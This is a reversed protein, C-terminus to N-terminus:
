LAVQESESKDAKKVLTTIKAVEGMSFSSRGAKARDIGEELKAIHAAQKSVKATLERIRNEKSTAIAKIKQNETLLSNRENKLGLVQDNLSKVHAMEDRKAANDHSKAKLAEKLKAVYAIISAGVDAASIEDEIAEVEATPQDKDFDEAHAKEHAKVLGPEHTNFRALIESKREPLIECFLDIKDAHVKYFSNNPSYFKNKIGKDTVQLTNQHQRKFWYLYNVTVEYGARTALAAINKLTLPKKYGTLIAQVVHVRKPMPSGAPDPQGDFREDIIAKQDPFLDIYNQKEHVFTSFFVHSPGYLKARGEGSFSNFLRTNRYIFNSAAKQSFDKIGLKEAAITCVDALSLVKKHAAFIARAIMSHSEAPGNKRRGKKAGDYGPKPAWIHIKGKIFKQAFDTLAKEDLNYVKRGASSILNLQKFNTMASQIQATKVQLGGDSLAKEIEEYSIQKKSHNALCYLVAQIYNKAKQDQFTIADMNKGKM